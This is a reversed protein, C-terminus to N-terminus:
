GDKQPSTNEDLKEFWFSKYLVMEGFKYVYKEIDDKYKKLLYEMPGAFNISLSTSLFASTVNWLRAENEQGIQRLNHHTWVGKEKKPNMSKNYYHLIFPGDLEGLIDLAKEVKLFDEKEGLELSEIFEFRQKKVDIEAAEMHEYNNPPLNYKKSM